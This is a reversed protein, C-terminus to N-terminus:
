FSFQRQSGPRNCTEGNWTIKMTENETMGFNRFGWSWALMDGYQSSSNCLLKLIIAINLNQEFGDSEGPQTWVDFPKLQDGFDDEFCCLHLMDVTLWPTHSSSPWWRWGVRSGPPPSPGCTWAQVRKWGEALQKWRKRCSPRTSVQARWRGKKGTSGAKWIEKLNLLKDM